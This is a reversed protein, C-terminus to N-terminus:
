NLYENLIKCESVPFINEIGFYKLHGVDVFCWHVGGDISEAILAKDTSYTINENKTGMVIKLIIKKFLKGNSALFEDHSYGSSSISTNISKFKEGDDNIRKKYDEIANLMQSKGGACKVFEPKTMNIIGESNSTLTYHAYTNADIFLNSLREDDTKPKEIRSGNYTCSNMLVLSLFLFITTSTKMFYTKAFNPSIM